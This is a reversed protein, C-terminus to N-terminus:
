RKVQFVYTFGFKYTSIVEREIAIQGKQVLLGAAANVALNWRFAYRIGAAPNFFFRNNGSETINFLMGGDATLYPTTQKILFCYRFDLYIPVMTGGNYFSLGTGLGTAFSKNFQYGNVTTFGVFGLSYPADTTKGVGLGFNVENISIIAPNTNMLRGPNYSRVRRSTNYKSQASTTLAVFLLIVLLSFTHNM